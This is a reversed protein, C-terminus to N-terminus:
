RNSENYKFFAENMREGSSRRWLVYGRLPSIALLLLAGLAGGSAAIIGIIPRFSVHHTNSYCGIPFGTAMTWIFFGLFMRNKERRPRAIEAKLADVQRHTDM